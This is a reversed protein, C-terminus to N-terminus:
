TLHGDRVGWWGARWLQALLYRGSNSTAYPNPLPGVKQRAADKGDEWAQRQEAPTSEVGDASNGMLTDLTLTLGGITAKLMEIYDNEEGDEPDLEDDFDHDPM